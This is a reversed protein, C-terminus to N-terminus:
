KIKLWEDALTELPDKEVKIIKKGACNPYQNCGLFEGFKSQRIVMIGKSCYYCKDGESLKPLKM